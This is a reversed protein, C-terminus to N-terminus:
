EYSVEVGLVVGGILVERDLLKQLSFNEGKIVVRGYSTSFSVREEELSLIKIFNVALFRNEFLTVRFENDIIYDKVKSLMVDGLLLYSFFLSKLRKNYDLNLSKM